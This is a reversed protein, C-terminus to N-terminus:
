KVYHRNYRGIALLFPMRLM